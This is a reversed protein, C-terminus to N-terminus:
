QERKKVHKKYFNTRNRMRTRDDAYSAKDTKSQDHQMEEQLKLFSDFRESNLAGGAIAAQV